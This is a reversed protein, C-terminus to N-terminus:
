PWDGAQIQREMERWKERHRGIAQAYAQRRQPDSANRRKQEAEEETFIRMLGDLQDQRLKPVSRILARKEIIHLAFSFCLLRLFETEDVELRHPPLRISTGFEPPPATM